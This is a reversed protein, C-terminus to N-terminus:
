FEKILKIYEISLAVTENIESLGGQKIEVKIGNKRAVAFLKNLDDITNRIEKAVREPPFDDYM